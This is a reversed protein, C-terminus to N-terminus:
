SEDGAGRILAARKEAAERHADRLPHNYRQHTAVDTHGAERMSVDEPVEADHSLSIATHRGGEHYKIVPVGAAACLKKFRKTVQDPNWPQGDPRTFVYDHEGHWAEGLYSRELQQTERHKRVLAATEADLFLLRKSGKTKPRDKRFLKGGLQLLVPLPVQRRCAAQGPTTLACSPLEVLRLRSAYGGGDAWAFSSYDLSVHVSAASAPGADRAVTFVVGSIGAAAAASRPLMTVQLPGPAPTSAQAPPASGATALPAAPGIWVPASGAKASGATANAMVANTPGAAKPLPSSPVAAPATISAIGAGPAPWTVAPQHWESMVPVPLSRTGVVHVPVAKAAPVPRLGALTFGGEGTPLAAATLLPALLGAALAAAAARALRTRGPSKNLLQWTM